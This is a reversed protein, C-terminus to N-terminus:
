SYAEVSLAEANPSLEACVVSLSPTIIIYHAETTLVTAKAWTQSTNFSLNLLRDCPQPTDEVSGEDQRWFPLKWLGWYGEFYNCPVLYYFTPKPM